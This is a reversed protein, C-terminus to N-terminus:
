SKAPPAWAHPGGPRREPDSAAAPAKELAAISQAPTMDTHCALHIALGERGKASSHTLIEAMRKREASAGLTRQHMMRVADPNIPAVTM